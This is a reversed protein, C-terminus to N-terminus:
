GLVNTVRWETDKGSKGATKGATIKEMDLRLESTVGVRLLAVSVKYVRGQSPGAVVNLVKARPVKVGAPQKPPRELLAKALESTATAQFAGEFKSAEGGTEYVVFGQAFERAVKLAAPGAPPGDPVAPQARAATATGENSTAASAKNKPNSSITAEAPSSSTAASPASASGKSSPESPQGETTQSKPKSTGTKEGGKIATSRPSFVPAAGHLTERPATEKKPEPQPTTPATAPSERPIAAETLTTTSSSSGGGSSLLLAAVVGVLALALAGGGLVTRNSTEPGLLAFRDEIPWIVREQLAFWVGALPEPLHTQPARIAPRRLKPRQVRPQRLKARPLDLKLAKPRRMKPLSVRAVGFKPRPVRMRRAKPLGNDEAEGVVRSAADDGIKPTKDNM